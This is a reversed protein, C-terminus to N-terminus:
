PSARRVGLILPPRLTSLFLSRKPPRLGLRGRPALIKSLLMLPAQPTPSFSTPTPLPRTDECFSGDQGPQHVHSGRSKSPPAAPGSTLKLTSPYTGPSIALGHAPVPHRLPRSHPLVARPISSSPGPLSTAPAASALGPLARAPLAARRRAEGAPPWTRQGGAADAWCPRPRPRPRAPATWGPRLAISVSRRGARAGGSGDRKCVWGRCGM